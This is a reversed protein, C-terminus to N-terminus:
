RPRFQLSLSSPCAEIIKPPLSDEREVLIMRQLKRAVIDKNELAYCLLDVIEEDEGIQNLFTLVQLNPPWGVSELRPSDSSQGFLQYDRIELSTLMDFARMKLPNEAGLSASDISITKLSHQASKMALIYDEVDDSSEELALIPDTSHTLTIEELAEPIVLIDTLGEDNIDCEIFHLEKLPTEAPQELSEFGRRDLKARRITLNELTPHGFIHINEQLDWYGNDERQYFLSGSTTTLVFYRCYYHKRQCEFVSIGSKCSKLCPLDFPSNFLIGIGHCMLEPVSIVLNELNSMTSIAYSFNDIRYSSDKLCMIDSLDTGQYELHGNQVLSGRRPRTALSSSFALHHKPQNFFISKYLYPDAVANIRRSVLCMSCIDRQAPLDELILLLVKDPLDSLRRPKSTAPASM